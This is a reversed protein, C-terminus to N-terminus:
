QNATNQSSQVSDLKAQVASDVKDQFAKEAKEQALESSHKDRLNNYLQNERSMRVAVSYSTINTTPKNLDITNPASYAYHRLSPLQGGQKVIEFLNQISKASEPSVSSRSCPVRKAHELNLLRNRFSFM